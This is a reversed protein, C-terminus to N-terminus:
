YAKYTLYGPTDVTDVRAYTVNTSNSKYTTGNGGVLKQAQKFMNNSSTVHSMDWMDSVYITTLKSANGSSYSFMTNTTTVSSTDFASLDLTVLGNTGYFMSTMNVVNSTDINEFVISTLNQKNYFMQNSNANFSIIRDSLIYLTNNSNYSYILDQSTAGVLTGNGSTINPYDSSLGFVVKTTTTSISSVFTSGSKLTYTSLQWNATFEKNEKDSSNFSVNTVPTTQGTWTWGLFTASARTPNTLTIVGDNATYSTPNTTTGGKLNYTITYRNLKYVQKITVDQFVTYTSGSHLSGGIYYSVTDYDLTTILYDNLNIVSGNSFRSTSPSQLVQEVNNEDLYYYEFTVNYGQQVMLSFTNVVPGTEVKVLANVKNTVFFSSLLVFSLVIYKILQKM